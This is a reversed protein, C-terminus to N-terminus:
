RRRQPVEVTATGIVWREGEQSEMWVDCEVTTSGDDHAHKEVVHGRIHVASGALALGRFTAGLRRLKLRRGWGLLMRSMVGLSLNGPVIQGPLGETRAQEDDTFRGFPTNVFVAYDRVRQKDLTVAMGPLEDGVEVDEFYVEKGM